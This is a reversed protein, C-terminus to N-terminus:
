EKQVENEKVLERFARAQKKLCILDTPEIKFIRNFIFKEIEKNKEIIKNVWKLDTEERVRVEVQKLKIKLVEIEHKNKGQEPLFVNSTEEEANKIASQVLAIVEKNSRWNIPLRKAQEKEIQKMNM